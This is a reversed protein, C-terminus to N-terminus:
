FNTLFRRFPTKSTNSGLLPENDLGQLRVGSQQINHTQQM